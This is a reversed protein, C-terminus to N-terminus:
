LALIWRRHSAINGTSVLFNGSIAGGIHQIINCHLHSCSATLLAISSEVYRLLVYNSFHTIFEDFHWVFNMCLYIASKLFAKRCFLAHAVVSGFSKPIAM